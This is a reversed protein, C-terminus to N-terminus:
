NQIINQFAILIANVPPVWCNKGKAGPIPATTVGPATVDTVAVSGIMDLPPVVGLIENCIGRGITSPPVPVAVGESM